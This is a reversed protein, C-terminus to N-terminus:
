TNGTKKAEIIIDEIEWAGDYGNRNSIVLQGGDPYKVTAHADFRKRNTSSNASLLDAVQLGDDAVQAGFNIVNNRLAPIVKSITVDQQYEGLYGTTVYASNTGDWSSYGQRKRSDAVSILTMGGFYSHSNPTLTLSEDSIASEDGTVLVNEFLATGTDNYATGRGFAQFKRNYFFFASKDSSQWVCCDDGRFYRSASADWFESMPDGVVAGIMDDSLKRFAAGDYEWVGQEGLFVLTNGTPIVAHQSMVGIDPRLLKVTWKVDATGVYKHLYVGARKFFIIADGFPVAATIEGPTTVVPTATVSEGGTFTTPAFLDSAMWYNPKNAGGDYLNYMVLANSQIALIKGGSASGLAFNSSGSADRSYLSGSTVSNHSFLSTNGMQAFAIKTGDIGTGFNTGGLSRNTLTVGSLSEVYFNGGGSSTEGAVYLVRTGDAIRTAWWKYTSYNATGANGGTLNGADSFTPMTHYTGYPTPVMNGTALWVDQRKADAGPLWRRM